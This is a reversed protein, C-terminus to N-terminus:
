VDEAELEARIADFQDQNAVILALILPTNNMIDHIVEQTVGMTVHGGRKNLDARVMTNSLKIDLDRESMIKLVDFSNAKKM